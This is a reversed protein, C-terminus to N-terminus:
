RGLQDTAGAAPGTPPEPMLVPLHSDSCGGQLLLGDRLNQIQRQTTM